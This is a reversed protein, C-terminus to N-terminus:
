EANGVFVWGEVDGGERKRTELDEMDRCAQSYEDCLQRAVGDFEVAGTMMDEYRLETLAHNLMVSLTHCQICVSEFRTTAALSKCDHPPAASCPEPSLYSCKCAFIYLKRSCPPPAQTSARTRIPITLGIGTSQTIQMPPPGEQLLPSTPMMSHFSM